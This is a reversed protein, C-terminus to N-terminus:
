EINNQVNMPITVIVKTFVNKQSEIILGYQEGYFLKIRRNVNDLGVSKGKKSNLRKFYVDNNMSLNENIIRLDEEDIGEGDDEVTINLNNNIVCASLIIIGKSDKEVGHVIANEILPQILLRPIRVEFVSSDINKILEIRDGFRKKIILSYSDIYHIEEEFTILKDDRGISAEMLSSLATVMESIEPVNNLLAMWNISELTNFLFHPNIQAQLAKMEADKRTLQEQYVWNSLINMEKVMRNFAEGLYGIEDKRNIDIQVNHEGKQIKEMGSIIKNFPRLLDSTMILSITSLVLVIIISSFVIQKRLIFIDKYLSDLSVVSIIKWNPKDNIILYSVINKKEDDYFWGKQDKFQLTKHTVNDSIEKDREVVIQNDSSLIMINQTDENVLDKFITDLYDKRILIVFIGVEEFNNINYAIRAMYLNKVRGNELDMYLIPLGNNLRAQTLMDKYIYSDYPVLQKISAEISNRDAPFYKKSNILAISQIEERAFITKKLHNQIIYSEEYERLLSEDNSSDKISKILNNDPILGQSILNLNRFYDKLRYEVMKLIDQTYQTSKKTLAKESNSYNIYSLGALSFILIINFVLMLKYRIPLNQYFKLIHLSEKKKKLKM